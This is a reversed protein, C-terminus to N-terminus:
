KYTNIDRFSAKYKVPEAEETEEVTYHYGANDYWYVIKGLKNRCWHLRASANKAVMVYHKGSINKIEGIANISNPLLNICLFLVLFLQPKM